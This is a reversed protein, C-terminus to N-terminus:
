TQRTQVFPSAHLGCVRAEANQMMRRLAARADDEELEGLTSQAIVRADGLARQTSEHLDVVEMSHGM